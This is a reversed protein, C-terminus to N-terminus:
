FAFLSTNVNKVRGTQDKVTESNKDVKKTIRDIQDNQGEIITSMEHSQQLMSSLLGGVADLNEEIENERQDEHHKRERRERRSQNDKNELLENRKESYTEQEGNENTIEIAMDQKQDEAQTEKGKNKMQGNKKKNPNSNRACCCCFWKELVTLHKEAEQM